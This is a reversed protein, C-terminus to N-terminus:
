AKFYKIKLHHAFYYLINPLVIRFLKLFLLIRKHLLFPSKNLFYYLSEFSYMFFNNLYNINNTSQSVSEDSVRYIYIQDQLYKGEMECTITHCFLGEFFHYRNKKYRVYKYYKDLKSKRFMSYFIMACEDLSIRAFDYRNKCNIFKGLTNVRTNVLKNKEFSEVDVNTFVSITDRKM